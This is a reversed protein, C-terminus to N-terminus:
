NDPDESDYVKIFKGKTRVEEWNRVKCVTIGIFNRLFDRYSMWFTGDNVDFTPHLENIM